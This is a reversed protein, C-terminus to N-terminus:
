LVWEIKDQTFVYYLSKHTVLRLGGRGEQEPGPSIEVGTLLALMKPPHYSLFDDDDDERGEVEEILKFICFRGEGLNVLSASIAMWDEPLTVEWQHKLTPPREEEVAADLDDWACLRRHSDGAFGLWVGLDPVYEAGGGSFPLHWEYPLPSREM